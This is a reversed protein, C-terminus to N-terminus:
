QSLGYRALEQEVLKLQYLAYIHTSATLQAHLRLLPELQREVDARV